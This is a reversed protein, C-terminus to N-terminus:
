DKPQKRRLLAMRGRKAVETFEGQALAKQHKDLEPGRLEADDVFVYETGDRDPYVYARPRDAAHPGLKPTAALSAGVPVRDAQERVWAYTEKEVVSLARAPKGAQLKFSANDVLAGFKWSVLLSAVLLGALVARRLRRPDVAAVGPLPGDALRALGAPALAFAFPVFAVAYRYPAGFAAARSALVCAALGVALVAKGRALLPLLALPLLSVLLFELKAEQFATRLAFAPNAVVSALLGFLGNKDPILAEFTSEYAAADPGAVLLGGARAIVIRAVVFWAVSAVATIAGLKRARADRAALAVLGFPVLLLAVDERCALTLALAVLYPRTAARDLLLALWVFLPAAIAISHFEDLALGQIAPHLAWAAALVVGAGRGIRDRALLYVPVVGGGLWVAQAVILLEPHPYLRHFPAIVLLIPDVHASLHTGSKLLSCALPHGHSTQWLVNEYVGLDATRTGLARHTYVALRGVFTAFGGWLSAVAVAALRDFLAARGPGPPTEAEPDEVEAVEYAVRGLFIATGACLALTLRTSDAEVGFRRLAALLPLACLGVLWRNAASASHVVHWSGTRVRRVVNVALHVAAIALAAGVVWLIAHKRDDATLKNTDLVGLKDQHAIAWAGAGLGIASLAPWFLWGTAVSALREAAGDLTASLEGLKARARAAITPRPASEVAGM